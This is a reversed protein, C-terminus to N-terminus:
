RTDSRLTALGLSLVTLLFAFVITLPRSPTPASPCRSLSFGLWMSQTRATHVNVQLVLWPLDGEHALFRQPRAGPSGIQGRVKALGMPVCILRRLPKNGSSSIRRSGLTLRCAVWGFTFRTIHPQPFPDAIQTDFLGSCDGTLAPKVCGDRENFDYGALHLQMCTARGTGRESARHPVLVRMTCILRLSVRNCRLLTVIGLVFIPRHPNLRRFTQNCLGGIEMVRHSFDELSEQQGLKCRTNSSADPLLPGHPIGYAILYYPLARFLFSPMWTPM